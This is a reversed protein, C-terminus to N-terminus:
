DNKSWKEMLEFALDIDFSDWKRCHGETWTEQQFLPSDPNTCPAPNWKVHRPPEDSGHWFRCSRCKGWWDEHIRISEERSIPLSIM